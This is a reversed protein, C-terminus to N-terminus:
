VGVYNVLIQASLFPGCQLQCFPNRQTTRANPLLVFLLLLSQVLLYESYVVGEVVVGVVACYTTRPPEDM